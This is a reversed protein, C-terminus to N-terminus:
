EDDEDHAYEAGEDWEAYLDGWACDASPVVFSKGYGPEGYTVIRLTDQELEAHEAEIALADQEDESWSAGIIDKFASM